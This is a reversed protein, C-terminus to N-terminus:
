HKQTAQGNDGKEDLLNELKSNAHRLHETLDYLEKSKAELIKEAQVRARRQRQLARNLLEVENNAMKFLIM